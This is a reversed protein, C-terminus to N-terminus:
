KILVLKKIETYKGANLKYFYIGSSLRYKNADFTIEYKGTVQENNILIAVENGLIDYVTLKVKGDAPLQYSIKTTPNFPNPYNQSLSFITPLEGIEVNVIESYAFNGDNDIQKLRYSYKSSMINDDIFSYDIISNNNGHGEVFGIKEWDDTRKSSIVARQIDFGYNNIETATQWNLTVKRESVSATFSTLEVPLVHTGSSFTFESFSTVGELYLYDDATGNIADAGKNYLLFGLNTFEGTGYEPRKWFKIDTVDGNNLDSLLATNVGPIDSVLFQVTSTFSFGTNNTFLYSTGAINSESAIQGLLNSPQESYQSVTIDNVGNTGAVGTFNITVGTGSFFIPDPNPNDTPISQTSHTTSSSSPDNSYQWDLYPYGDHRGNGINWIEDTGNSSEGKFDWSANLYINPSSLAQTTMEPSTKGTAGYNNDGSNGGLGSTQVNWFCNTISPGVLYINYSYGTFGGINTSTGSVACKTFCFETPGENNGVFGGVNKAGSVQGTSYCNSTRAGSSNQGAFGGIYQKSTIDTGVGEVLSSSYSKTILSNSGYNNGVLGGVRAEGYIQGITYCNTIMANLNSGVLIGVYYRGEVTADEIGLNEIIAGEGTYGFLGVRDTSKRDIKLGTIKRRNGDFKGYFREYDMAKGIPEWGSAGWLTYGGGSNLYETLDIDNILKFYKEVHSTGIYNRVNNLQEATSILYPDSPTGTGGAFQSYCFCTSLLIIITTMTKM